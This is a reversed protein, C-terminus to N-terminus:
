QSWCNGTKEEKGDTQRQHQDPDPFVRHKHVLSRANHRVGGKGLKPRMNQWQVLQARDGMIAHQEKPIPCTAQEPAAGPHETVRDGSLRLNQGAAHHDQAVSGTACGQGQCSAAGGATEAQALAGLGQNEPEPCAPRTEPAQAAQAPPKSQRHGGGAAARGEFTEKNMFTTFCRRAADLSLTVMKPADATSMSQWVTPHGRTEGAAHHSVSM